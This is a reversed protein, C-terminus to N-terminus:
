TILVEEEKSIKKKKRNMVVILLALAALAIILGVLYIYGESLNQIASSAGATIVQYKPIIWSVVYAQILM